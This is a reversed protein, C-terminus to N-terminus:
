FYIFRDKIGEYLERLRSSGRIKYKYEEIIEKIEGKKMRLMMEIMMYGLKNDIIKELINKNIFKNDVYKIMKIGIKEMCNRIIVELVSEGNNMYNIIEKDSREIIICGFEEKQNDCIRYLIDKKYNIMKDDMLGSIYCLKDDEGDEIIYDLITNDKEDIMNITERYTKRIIKDIIDNRINNIIIEKMIKFDENLEKIEMKEIMYEIMEERRNKIMEIMVRKYYERRINGNEINEKIIEDEIYEIYELDDYEEGYRYIKDGSKIEKVRKSIRKYGRNNMYKREIEIYEMKDDIDEINYVKIYRKEM